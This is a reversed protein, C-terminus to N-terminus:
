RKSYKIILEKFDVCKQEGQLEIKVRGDRLKGAYDFMPRILWKGRIDIYGYLGDLQVSAVGESFSYARQFKASIKMRGDLGVYGWAGRFKVLARSDRFSSANAFRFGGVSRGTPDIYGYRGDMSVVARSESFDEASHYIPPIKVNSGEDLYGWCKGDSFAVLGESFNKIKCYRAEIKVVNDRDVLGCKGQNWYLECDEGSELSGQPSTSLNEFLQILTTHNIQDDLGKYNKAFQPDESSIKNFIADDKALLLEPTFVAHENIFVESVWCEGRSLADLTACILLLSYNDVEGSFPQEGRTPHQYRPTGLERHGLPALESLYVGDYDVLTLEGGERVMINDPKLDGHAFDQRLLWLAFEVFKSKLRMLAEFNDNYLARIIFSTMTEGEVWDMLLVDYTHSNNGEFVRIEDKLYSHAIIYPSQPLLRKSIIEYAHSRHEQHRTFCKLAKFEGSYEVKFVVGFNGSSMLPEGDDGLVVSVDGLRHLLERPNSLSQIYQYYTPYNM